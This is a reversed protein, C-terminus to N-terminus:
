VWTRRGRCEVKRIAARKQRRSALQVKTGMQLGAKQGPQQGENLGAQRNRGTTKGLCRKGPNQEHM